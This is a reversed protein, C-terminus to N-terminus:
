AHSIFVETTNPNGYLIRGWLRTAGSVGPFYSALSLLEQGDKPGVEIGGADAAPPTIGVTATFRLTATSTNQYTLETVDAATLLVWGTGAITVNDNFAM